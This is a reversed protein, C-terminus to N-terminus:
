FKKPFYLSILIFCVILYSWWVHFLIGLGDEFPFTCFKKGFLTRIESSPPVFFCDKWDRKMRGRQVMKWPFRVYILALQFHHGGSWSCRLCMLVKKLNRKKDDCTLNQSWDLPYGVLIPKLIKSVIWMILELVHSPNLNKM